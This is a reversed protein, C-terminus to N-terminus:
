FEPPTNPVYAGTVFFESEALRKPRLGPVVPKQGLFRILPRGAVSLLKKLGM